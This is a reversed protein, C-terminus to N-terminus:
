NLLAREKLNREMMAVCNNWCMGVVNNLFFGQLPVLCPLDSAIETHLLRGFWDVAFPCCRLGAAIQGLFIVIM